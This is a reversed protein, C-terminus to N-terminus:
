RKSITNEAKLAKYAKSPNDVWGCVFRQWFSGPVVATVQPSFGFAPSGSLFMVQFSDIDGATCIARGQVSHKCLAAIIKGDGARVFNEYLRVQGRELEEWREHQSSLETLLINGLSDFVLDVDSPTIGRPLMGNRASSQTM